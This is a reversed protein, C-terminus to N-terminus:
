AVDTRLVSRATAAILHLPHSALFAANAEAPIGVMAAALRLGHGGVQSWGWVMVGALALVSGGLALHRGRGGSAASPVVLWVALLAAYVGKSLALLLAAAAFVLALRGDIPRASDCARVVIALLVLASGLLTVDGSLSAASALAMPLLAFATALPRLGPAIRCALWVALLYAALNALRALLLRPGPPANLARGVALAVGPAVYGTPAYIGPSRGFRLADVHTLDLDTPMDWCAVVERLEVKREPHHPLAWQRARAALAVLDREMPTSFTLLSDGDTDPLFRLSAAQRAAFLHLWEDPAQFPPTVVALGVGFVAGIVLWAPNRRAGM